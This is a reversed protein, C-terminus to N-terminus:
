LKEENSSTIGNDNLMIKHSLDKSGIFMYHFKGLDLLMQDNHVM